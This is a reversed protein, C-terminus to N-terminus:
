SCSILSSSVRKIGTSKIGHFGTYAGDVVEIRSGVWVEMAIKM